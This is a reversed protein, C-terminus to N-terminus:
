ETGATASEIAVELFERGQAIPDLTMRVLGVARGSRQPRVNLVAGGSPDQKDAVGRAVDIREGALTKAQSEAGGFQQDVTHHATEWLIVVALPTLQSPAVAHQRRGQKLNGGVSRGPRADHRGRLGHGRHEGSDDIQKRLLM